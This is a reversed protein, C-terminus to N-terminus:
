GRKFSRGAAPTAGGEYRIKTAVYRMITRTPPDIQHVVALHQAVKRLLEEKTSALMAAKCTAQADACRFSVMSWEKRLDVVVRDVGFPILEEGGRWSPPPAVVMAEAQGSM